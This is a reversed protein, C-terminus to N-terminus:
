NRWDAAWGNRIRGRRRKRWNWKRRRWSQRCFLASACISKWGNMPMEYSRFINKTIKFNEFNILERCIRSCKMGIGKGVEDARERRATEEGLRDRAEALERELELQKSRM